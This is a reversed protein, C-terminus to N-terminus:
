AEGPQYYEAYYRLACEPCFTHSFRIEQFDSSEVAAARWHGHDDRIRGCICCASFILFDAEKLNLVAPM